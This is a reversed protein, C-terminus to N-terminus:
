ASHAASTPTASTSTTCRATPGETLYVIDGYPGDVSGDAPEFNFVGTVNGTADLTLRKIWNQTYDAFFYSGQYGSPFQRGTTSSAAPSRGRGARQAPVLLAPQHVAVLVPGRQQALRLQRRARRHGGGGERHLRRQRRRRRHVAARHPRRLLRPVPQPTRLAWISDWNPGAGDYFPDDTPITGDPNIRHIKGRPNNLEQAIPPTSTSAPPSTSSATTASCSRVATINPNADEPGPLARVRQRRGNRHADREGHVAVSPRPQAIGLTYFVYYFHNSTFNPDLAVDYIGQQVGASGVNTLQLFPTPDPDTYPPSLVMIKRSSGSSCGVTPCSSMATPLDFGTALVDNQFFNTNVVNM